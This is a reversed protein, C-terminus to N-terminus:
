SRNKVTTKIKGFNELFPTFAARKHSKINILKQYTVDKRFIESFSRVNNM